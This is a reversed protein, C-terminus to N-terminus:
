APKRPAAFPSAAEVAGMDDAAFYAVVQEKAQPRTYVDARPARIADLIVAAVEEATQASPVTRSDIGGGLAKVGFETAVVGPSVTTVVIAPYDARLEGRLSGTLANLAHKAANYASRMPALPIRGLMSSVNVIQGRGREKFHPLVAQMGYLASKVNVLMMEDFDADTLQSVPRTIGRGANNVWVDVHGFRAVAEELVRAVEVRRTVDAPIALAEPGCRAAVERLERERRAVLVPRGGAAALAEALAAGIGSSAGTIVVVRGKLDAEDTM